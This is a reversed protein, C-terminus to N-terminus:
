EAPTIPKISPKPMNEFFKRQDDNLLLIKLKDITQFREIMRVADFEKRVCFIATDTM